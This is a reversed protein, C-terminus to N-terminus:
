KKKKGPEVARESGNGECNREVLRKKQTTWKWCGIGMRRIDQVGCGTVMEEQTKEEKDSRYYTWPSATKDNKGRANESWPEVIKIETNQCAKGLKRM